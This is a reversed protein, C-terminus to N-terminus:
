CDLPTDEVLENKPCSVDKGQVKIVPVLRVTLVNVNSSSATVNFQSKFVGSRSLNISYNTTQVTNAVTTDDTIITANIATIQATGSNQLIFDLHAPSSSNYCIKRVNNIMLFEMRADNSCKIETDSKQQAFTATDEVYARGWNMVVAGLAVAFAILLVTAILPSVGKKNFRKMKM